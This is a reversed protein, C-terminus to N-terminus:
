VTVEQYKPPKCCALRINQISWTVKGSKPRINVAIVFLIM